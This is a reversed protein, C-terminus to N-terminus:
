LKSTVEALTHYVDYEFYQSPTKKLERATEQQRIITGIDKIM